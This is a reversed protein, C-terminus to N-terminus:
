AKKWFPGYVVMRMGCMRCVYTRATKDPVLPALASGDLNIPKEDILEMAEKGAGCRLCVLQGNPLEGDPFGGAINELEVTNLEKKEM